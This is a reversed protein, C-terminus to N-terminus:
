QRVEGEDIFCTEPWLALLAAYDSHEMADPHIGHAQLRERIYKLDQSSLMEQWQGKSGNRVFHMGELVAMKNSSGMKKAHKRDSREIAQHVAAADVNMGLKEFVEGVHDSRREDILMEYSVPVAGSEKMWSTFHKCYGDFHDRIYESLDGRYQKLGDFVQRELWSLHSAQPGSTRSSFYNYNSIMADLPNRFLHISRARNRYEPICPLHTKLLCPLTTFPWPKQLDDFFQDSPMLDDLAQFDVAKGDLERLAIINMWIFRFLTNGSKPYSALLLADAKDGHIFQREFLRYRRGSYISFIAKRYLLSPDAIVRGIKGALGSM